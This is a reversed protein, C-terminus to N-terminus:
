IQLFEEDSEGGRDPCCINVVLFGALLRGRVRIVREDNVVSVTRCSGLRKWTLTPSVVVEADTLHLDLQAGHCQDEEVGAKSM